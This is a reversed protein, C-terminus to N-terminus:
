ESTGAPAPSLSLTIRAVRISNKETWVAFKGAHLPHALPVDLVPAQDFRVRVHNRRVLVNVTFWNHHLSHGSPLGANPAVAIRRGNRWAEIGRNWANMVRIILGTEPRRGDGGLTLNLDRGRRYEEGFYRRAGVALVAAAAYPPKLPWRYWLATQNRTEAGMWFWRPDCSWRAMPEWDAGTSYWDTVRGRFVYDRWGPSVFGISRRVTQPAPIPLVPATRHPAAFTAPRGDLLLIGPNFNPLLLHLGNRFDPAPRILWPMSYVTHSEIGHQALGAWAQCSGEEGRMRDTGPVLLSVPRAAVDDFWAKGTKSFLGFKGSPQDGIPAAVAAQVTGDVFVTWDNPERALTLRHWGGGPPLCSAALCATKGNPDLRRLRVAGDGAAELELRAGGTVSVWLGAIGSPNLRLDTSFAWDLGAHAAATIKAPAALRAAFETHPGDGRPGTCAASGHVIWGPGLAPGARMFDDAFLDPAANPPRPHPIPAIPPCRSGALTRLLAYLPRVMAPGRWMYQFSLPIRCYLVRGKGLSRVWLAPGADRGHVRIAGYGHWASDAHGRNRTFPVDRAPRFRSGPPIGAFWKSGNCVLVGSYQQGLRQVPEPFFLRRAAFNRPIPGTYNELLLAGGHQVFAQLATFMAPIRARLPRPESLCLVRFAALREPRVLDSDDVKRWPLGLEICAAEFGGRYCGGVGFIFPARRRVLPPPPPGSPKSFLLRGRQQVPRIKGANDLIGRPQFGDDATLLVQDVAIGDERPKLHLVHPGAGLKMRFARVWHWSRYVGDNGVLRAPDGDLGAALSNGCGDDWRVRFWLTLAAPCPLIFRWQGLEAPGKGKLIRDPIEIGRGAALGPDSFRRVCAAANQLSEAEIVLTLAGPAPANGARPLSGKAGHRMALAVGCALLCLGAQGWATRLLLRSLRVPSDRAGEGASLGAGAPGTEGPVRATRGRVAPRALGLLMGCLLGGARTSVPTFFAGLALTLLAPGVFVESPPHGTPERTAGGPTKELHRGTSLATGTLVLFLFGAAPIGSEVALVLYGCEMGSEVKTERPRPLDGRYIGSSVIEQFRGPGHGLWPRNRVARTGAICEQLWRRPPGGPDLPAISALIERHHLLGPGLFAAIGAAVVIKLSFRRNPVTRVTIWLTNGLYLILGAASTIALGGAFVLAPFARRWRDGSGRPESFVRAAALRIWAALALDRFFRNDLVRAAAAPTGTIETVGLVVLAAIGAWVLGVLLGRRGPLLCVLIPVALFYFGTQATELVGRGFSPAHMGSLAIWLVLFLGPLPGGPLRLSIWRRIGPLVACGLLVAVIAERWPFGRVPIGYGGLSIMGALWELFDM